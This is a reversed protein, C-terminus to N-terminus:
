NQQKGKARPFDPSPPFALRQRAPVKQRAGKDQKTGNGSTATKARSALSCDEVGPIPSGGPSTVVRVRLLQRPRRRRLLRLLVLSMILLRANQFQLPRGERTCAAPQVGRCVRGAPLPLVLLLVSLLGGAASVIVPVRCRRGVFLVRDDTADAAKVVVVAEGDLALSTVDPLMALAHAHGYLRDWVYVQALAAQGSRQVYLLGELELAPFFPFVRVKGAVVFLVRLFVAVGARVGFVVFGFRKGVRVVRLGAFGVRVVIMAGAFRTRGVETRRFGGAGGLGIGSAAAASCRRRGREPRGPRGPGLLWLLLVAHVLPSGGTRLRQPVAVRINRVSRVRFVNVEVVV